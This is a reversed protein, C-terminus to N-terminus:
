LLCDGTGEACCHPDLGGCIDGEDCCVDTRPDCAQDHERCMMCASTDYACRDTCVLGDGTLNPFDDCLQGNLNAGDCQEGFGVEGNGCLGYGPCVTYDLMTCDDSCGPVGEGFRMAACDPTEAPRLEGDCAEGEDIAGNGCLSPEGTSSSDVADTSEAVTAATSGESATVPGTSAEGGFGCGPESPPSAVCGDNVAVCRDCYRASADRQECTLDGEQNGCHSANLQRCAGGALVLSALVM